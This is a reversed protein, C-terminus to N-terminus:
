SLLGGVRKQRILESQIAIAIQQGLENGEADSGSVATGTADVSVSINNVVSDGGMPVSPLITGSTRPVFLEPQREGVIYPQNAKVPGGNAKFLGGLVSGFFGGLGKKEGGSASEEFAEGFGGVLKEIQADIIADRLRNLIGTLAEGLTKAGTIADRLNNKIGSEIEEGVDKFAQRLRDAAEKQRKLSDEKKLLSILQKADEEEFEQQIELIKEELTIQDLTKGAIQEELIRINKLTEITIDNFKNAKAIQKDRDEIAKEIALQVKLEKLTKRLKESQLGKRSRELKREAEAIDDLIKKVEAGVEETEGLQKNFEEQAKAAEDAARKQDIFSGVLLGLGIILLGIGTQAIAIKLAHVALTAKSIGAAAAYSASAVGIIGKSALASSVATSIFQQKLVAVQGMLIPAVVIIKKIAVAIATFILTAQGAGSNLFATISKTIETLGRVVPLLVPMLADGLARSLNEGENGLNKFVQTPDNKLLAELSDAGETEIKKLARVMVASTIKGEAAFKKLEGVTVGLEDAVPKLITPIQEAISRFEDGQLRGSGLAQALQTFANSAETTTAGSLKAATNFGFFVTKIDELSVGLPQLRATINTIGELAETSSLGFTKQAQSVIELTDKYTGTTKTLLGLRVNLREFNTSTTIAQRALVTFGVGAIATKLLGFSRELKQTKDNVGQLARTAGGADVRLRVVAEAM